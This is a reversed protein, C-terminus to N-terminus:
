WQEIALKIRDVADELVVVSPLYAIRLYGPMGFASGPITVVGSKELLVRTFQSDGSEDLGVELLLDRVDPFLYFAGPPIPCDIGSVKNLEQALLDRKRKFEHRISESLSLEHAFAAQAAKQSISSPSSTFHSQIKELETMYKARGIVYGVRWGTMAFIKSTSGVTFGKTYGSSVQTWFRDQQYTFGDYCEDSIVFLDESRALNIIEEGQETNYVGGTPNGPSNILIVKTRPTVKEEIESVSPLYHNQPAGRAFVPEGRSLRVQAPYSPYYPRPLIVQDGEELLLQMIEFLGAKAGATVLISDDSPDLGFVKQYRQGIAERLKIIGGAETYGTFGTKIADIGAARAVKPEQFSPDGAGLDIVDQGDRMLQKARDNIEQTESKRLSEIRGALL